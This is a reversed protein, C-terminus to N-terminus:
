NGSKSRPYTLNKKRLLFSLSALLTGVLTSSEPISQQLQLPTVVPPSSTNTAYLGPTFTPLGVSSYPSFFIDGGGTSRYYTSLVLLFSSTGEESLCPPRDNCLKTELSFSLQSTSIRYEFFLRQYPILFPSDSPPFLESPLLSFNISFFDIVPEGTYTSTPIKFLGGEYIASLNSVESDPTSGGNNLRGSDFIGFIIGDNNFDDGSFFGSLSGGSRWNEQFFTFSAANVSTTSFLTFSLLIGATTATKKLSFKNIM